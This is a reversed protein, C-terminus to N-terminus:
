ARGGGARTRRGDCGGLALLAAATMVGYGSAQKGLSLQIYIDHLIGTVKVPYRRQNDIEITVTDGVKVGLGQASQREFFRARAPCARGQKPACNIPAFTPSDELSTLAIDHSPGSPLYITAM